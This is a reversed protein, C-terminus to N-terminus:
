AGKRKQQLRKLDPGMAPYKKEVAIIAVDFLDDLTKNDQGEICFCLAMLVTAIQNNFDCILNKDQLLQLAVSRLQLDIQTMDIKGIKQPSAAAILAAIFDRRNM